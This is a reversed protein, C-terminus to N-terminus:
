LFAIKIDMAFVLWICAVFWFFYKIAYMCWNFPLFIDSFPLNNNKSCASMYQLMCIKLTLRGLFFEMHLDEMPCLKLKIIYKSIHIDLPPPAQPHVTPYMGFDFGVELVYDGDYKPNSVTHSISSHTRIKMTWVLSQMWSHVCHSICNFVLENM